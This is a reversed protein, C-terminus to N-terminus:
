RLTRGLKTTVVIKEANKVIDYVKRTVEKIKTYDSMMGTQMIKETIDVMHAERGHETALKILPRRVTPLEGKVSDATFFVATSSKLGDIVAEPLKELPRPGFDDLNFQRASDTVKLCEKLIANTITASGNDGVLVVSDSSKIRMCNIVAQKAGKQLATLNKDKMVM